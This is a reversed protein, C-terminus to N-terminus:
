ILKNLGGCCFVLSQTVFLLFKNEWQELPQFDLIMTGVPNIEGSAERWPKCITVKKSHGWMTKERDMHM